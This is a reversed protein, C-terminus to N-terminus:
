FRYYITIEPIWSRYIGNKYFELTKGEKTIHCGLTTNVSLSIHVPVKFAFDICISGLLGCMHGKSTGHDAVYGITAGPGAMVSFSTEEGINGDTLPLLLAYDCKIGANDHKHGIVDLIDASLNIVSLNQKRSTHRLSFGVNKPSSLVGFDM